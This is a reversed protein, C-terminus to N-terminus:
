SADVRIVKWPGGWVVEVLRLEDSDSAENRM